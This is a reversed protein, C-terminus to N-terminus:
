GLFPPNDFLPQVVRFGVDAFGMSILGPRRPETNSAQVERAEDSWSLGRIVRLASAQRHWDDLCWEAVWEIAESDQPSRARFEPFVQAVHDLESELPLRWNQQTQRLWFQVLTWSVNVVRELPEGSLCEQPGGFSRWLSSHVCDRAMLFPKIQDGLGPVVLWHLATWASQILALSVTAQSSPLWAKVAGLSIRQSLLAVVERRRQESCQSWSEFTALAEVLSNSNM